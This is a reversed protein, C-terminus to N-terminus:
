LTPVRLPHLLSRTERMEHAAKSASSAPPLPTTRPSAETQELLFLFALRPEGPLFDKERIM